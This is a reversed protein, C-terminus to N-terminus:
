VRGILMFRTYKKQPLEGAYLTEALAAHEAFAALTPMCNVHTPESFYDNSQLLVTTGPLLLNLWARVDAIHECSTNIVLDPKAERYDLGYMDATVAHFRAEGGTLTRAIAAVPPDIDFSELLSIDFRNDDFLMAALVGYWGGMLWVCRYRGGCATFLCDRAWMKCAVQKHNFATGIEAEPHKAMVRAIAGALPNGSYAALGRVLDFALERTDEPASPMTANPMRINYNRSGLPALPPPFHLIEIQILVDVTQRMKGARGGFDPLHNGCMEEAIARM